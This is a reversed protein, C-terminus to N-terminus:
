KRRPDPAGPLFGILRCEARTIEAVQDTNAIAVNIKGEVVDTVIAVRGDLLLVVCNKSLDNM